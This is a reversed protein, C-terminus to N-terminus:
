EDSESAFLVDQRIVYCRTKGPHDPLVRKAARHKGDKKLAGIGDLASLMVDLSYPDCVSRPIRESFQIEVAGDRDEGIYGELQSIAFQDIKTGQRHKQFRSTRFCRIHERLHQLAEMHQRSGSTGRRMLWLRYAHEVAFAAEMQEWGVIGWQAALEGAAAVFAFRQLIRGVEPSDTTKKCADSFTEMLELVEAKVQAAGSELMKSVFVPAATGYYDLAGSTISQAFEAGSPLGHLDDFIGHKGADAPIECIRVEQGTFTRGSQRRILDLFGFEGSSLFVLDFSPLNRRKLEKNMRTTAEGHAFFYALDSARDKDRLEALEDLLLLCHNHSLGLAEAGNATMKWTHCFGNKGGGGWASGAVLLATSKGTTSDSAFHFGGGMGHKYPLLLPAFAASVAFQLLPNGRCPEAVNRRWEDLTGSQRFHHNGEGSQDLLIREPTEAPVTWAPTIFVRGNDHWGIVDVKRARTKPDVKFLFERLAAVAKPAHSMNFGCSMLRARWEGKEGALLADSLILTHERGDHDKFRLERGWEENRGDRTRSLVELPACLWVEPGNDQERFLGETTLKFGRPLVEGSASSPTPEDSPPPNQARLEAEEVLQLLVEKTGGAQRWDTVDAKETEIPLRLILSSRAQGTLTSRVHEAHNRGPEDNDPLIVVDRGALAASYEARWKGAGGPNTTAVLGWSELTHVDKEGEVVFVRDASLVKPLRYLVRRVGQLNNIWTGGAEPRRGIFTKVSRATDWRRVQQFLLAGNEDTYSYSELEVFQGGNKGNLVPKGVLVCIAKLAEATTVKSLVAELGVVGWGRNCASHCFANGTDPNFSFSSPNTGGHIPCAGRYENGQRTLDPLRAHQWTRMESLTFPIQAM